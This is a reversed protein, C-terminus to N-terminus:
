YKKQMRGMERKAEDEKLSERKDYQKKGRAIGIEVKAFGRDSIYVKTPIITVGKERIKSKIKIIEKKHLLLKRDRRPPHNGYSGNDYPSIHMNKIWIEDDKLYCYADTLNAKGEKLAKVETGTLIIGAEWTDDIFYNFSARKNLISIASYAKGAM